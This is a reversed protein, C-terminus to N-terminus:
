PGALHDHIDRKCCEYAAGANESARDHSIQWAITREIAERAGWKPGWGLLVAAKESSLLLVETEKMVTDEEKVSYRIDNCIQAALGCVDRVSLIDKSRPGFNLCTFEDKRSMHEALLLYGSLPDLVHQWPRIAKPKRIEVSDGRMSKLLDPMLREETYDGGGIVNGARATALRLLSNGRHRGFSQHWSRVALECSAKSASYPDYGGLDDSERYGHLWGKDEYVKDTTVCICVGENKAKMLADLLCVTGFTNVRWTELPRRYSERVLPQAALHFTVEPCVEKIYAGLSGTDCIDGFYQEKLLSKDYSTVSKFLYTNSDQGLDQSYGYVEAGLSSLLMTLWSGKFGSNGTILVRKGQWHSRSIEM